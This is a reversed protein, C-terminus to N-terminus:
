IDVISHIASFDYAEAVAPSDVTSISTMGGNFIRGEEQNQKFFEFAPQGYIHELAPKGTRVSYELNSWGRGHWERGGMIALDRLSPTADSRLVASLPTESFKGDAGESLVGVCATARMLRYLAQADAGMEKALEEASKPGGELLDPIGMQAVCAVAGAVHTGNMIQLIGVHAPVTQTAQASMLREGMGLNQGDLRPLIGLAEQWSLTRDGTRSSTRFCYNCQCTEVSESNDM